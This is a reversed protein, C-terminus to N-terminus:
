CLTALARLRISKAEDYHAPDSRTGRRHDHSPVITGAARSEQTPFHSAKQLASRNFTVSQLHGAGNAITQGASEVRECGSQLLTAPNQNRAHSGQFGSLSFSGCGHFGFERATSKRAEAAADTTGTAIAFALGRNAPASLESAAAAGGSEGASIHFSAPTM